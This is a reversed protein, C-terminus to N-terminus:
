GIAPSAAPRSDTDVEPVRIARAALQLSAAVGAAFWFAGRQGAWDYVLGSLLTMVAICGLSIGGALGQGTAQERDTTARSVAAYSNPIAAANCFAELVGLVLLAVVAETVGMVAIVLVVAGAGLRTVREAGHRDGLAGGIPAAILFPIGYLTLSLGIVMTSAGLDSMLPAWVVEYMGVPAQLAVVYLTARQIQPRRLLDRLRTASEGAAVAGVYDVRALSPLVLLVPVAMVLFPAALSGSVEFVGAAVIPGVILGATQASTLVGLRRGTEQPNGAIVAAQAAPTFLGVGLGGLARAAIMHLLSDAVAFWLLSAVGAVAGGVLMRNAHGADALKSLTLQAALAVGFFSFAVLGLGADSFGAHDQLEALLTFIASGSGHLALSALGLVVLPDRTDSRPNM